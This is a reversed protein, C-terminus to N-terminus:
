KVTIKVKKWMGNQSIVYIYCNGKKRGKVKGTNTVVAITEDSSLYRLEKTLLKKRKGKPWEVRAVVKATRGKKVTLSTKKVVINKPNAYISGKSANYVYVKYSSGIAVKKGKVTKYATVMYAYWNNKKLNKQSYVLKKKDKVEKLLKFKKQNKRTKFNTGYVFYGDADDVKNWTLKCVGKSVKAKLFVQKKQKVAPEFSPEDENSCSLVLNYDSENQAYIEQYEVVDEAELDVQKGDPDVPKGNEDLDYYETTVSAFIKKSKKRKVMMQKYIDGDVKVTVNQSFTYLKINSIQAGTGDIIKKNNLVAEVQNFPNKPVLSLITQLQKKELQKRLKYSSVKVRVKAQVQKGNETVSRNKMVYMPNQSDKDFEEVNVHQGRIKFQGLKAELPDTPLEVYSAVGSCIDDMTYGELLDKESFDIRAEQEDEERVQIVGSDEKTQDFTQKTKSIITGSKDTLAAIVNGSAVNSYSNNKVTVVISAEKEQHEIRTSVSTNSNYKEILSKIEVTGQNDTTDEYELLSGDANQVWARIYFTIGGTPIEYGSLRLDEKSYQNKILKNIEEEKIKWEYSYFGSDILEFKNDDKITFSRLPKVDAKEGSLTILDPNSAYVGVVIEKGGKVLPVTGTNKITFRITRSKQFEETIKVDEVTIEPKNFILTGKCSEEKSESGLASAKISYEIDKISDVPVQYVAHLVTSQGPLVTVNYEQKKGDLTISVMDIKKIGANTVTFPVALPFGRQIEYSAIVPETAEVACLKFEGKATYLNTVGVPTYIDLRDANDSEGKNGETVHQLRDVTYTSPDDKNIEYHTSQVSAYVNDGKSYPQFSDITDGSGMNAMEVPRSVLIRNEDQYFRVASLSYTTNLYTDQEDKETDQEEKKTELWVVSLNDIAADKAPKSFRFNYSIDKAGAQQISEIFDDCPRGEKNVAQLRIDKDVKEIDQQKGSKATNSENYWGLIFREENKWKIKTVQVNRDTQTDNTIRTSNGFTADPNIVSYMVETDEDKDGTKVVYAALATGDELIETEVSCVSGTQGNYLIIDDSWTDKAKDYVKAYITDCVNFDLPNDINSSQVNRWVVVAHNGSVAVTPALDPTGNETLRVPSWKDGTWVSAYIESGNLMLNLEEDTVDKGAGKEIESMERIWTAVSFQRTGAIRLSSDGYGTRRTTRYQNIVLGNEDYVPDLKGDPSVEGTKNDLQDTVYTVPDIGHENEYTGDKELAYSALTDELETSDSDSLFAMISGDENYAPEAFTYANSQVLELQNKGAEDTSDAKGGDWNRDFRQLYTRSEMSEENAELLMIGEALSTGKYKRGKGKELNKWYDNINDWDGWGKAKNFNAISWYKSVSLFLVKAEAKIGINGSIGLECGAKTENKKNTNVMNLMANSEHVGLMGFIGLKLVFPGADVGVGAFCEVGLELGIHTLFDVGKNDGWYTGAVNFDLKATGFISFSYCVPVPGAMLTGAALEKEFKLGASLGGGVFQFEWKNQTRDFIINGMLYGGYSLQFPGVNKKFFSENEIKDNKKDNTNDQHKTAASGGNDTTQKSVNSESKPRNKTQKEARKAEEKKLKEKKKEEKKKKENKTEIHDDMDGGAYDATVRNDEGIPIMVNFIFPDNTPALLFRIDAGPDSQLTEMVKKAPKLKDTDIENGLITGIDFGEAISAATDKAAKNVDKDLVPDTDSTNSVSFTNVIEKIPQETKNAVVLVTKSQSNKVWQNMQMKKMKWTTRVLPMDLFPYDVVQSKQNIPQYGDTDQYYTEYEKDDPKVAGMGYQFEKGNEDTYLVPETELKQGWFLMETELETFPYQYSIGVSDTKGYVDTINSLYNSDREYQYFEQTNIVPQLMGKDAKRVTVDAQCGNTLLNSNVDTEITILQPEYVLKNQRADDDKQFKMELKYTIDDQTTIRRDVSTTEERTYFQSSDFYVTFKGNENTVFEQDQKGDTVSKPGKGIGATYCYKDNKLVGGRVWVTQNAYPTGNENKIYIDAKGVSVLMFNNIPYYKLKSIDQEGTVLQMNAITGIYSEENEESLCYVDSQIGTPEYLALEGKENSQVSCKEGKGNTYSVTTVTAPLFKFLYLQDKLTKSTITIKSSMGTRVQTAKIVTKGDELGVAMFNDSPSYSVYDYCKLNSYSGGQQYNLTTPTKVENKDKRKNETVEWSIQDSIQGWVYDGYNISIISHLNIDESLSEISVIDNGLQITKRDESLLNEIKKHNDLEIQNQDTVGPKNKGKVADVLIDLADHNYVYLVFSDTSPVEQNAAQVSARIVYAKKLVNKVPKPSWSFVNKGNKLPAHYVEEGDADTISFSTNKMVAGESSLECRVRLEKTDLISYSDLKGLSVDPLKPVAYIGVSSTLTTHKAVIGANTSESSISDASITAIYDPTERCNANEIIGEPITFKGIAKQNTADQTKEYVPQGIPNGSEDAKYLKITFPTPYEDKKWEGLLNMSKAEEANLATINSSFCVDLASKREVRLIAQSGAASPIKLFPETGPECHLTVSRCVEVPQYKLLGGNLAYLTFYVKGAKGTPVIQVSAKKDEGYSSAEEGTYQDPYKVTAVNEDSSVWILDSRGFFTFDEEKFNATIKLEDGKVRFPKTVYPENLEYLNTTVAKKEDSGERLILQEVQGDKMKNISSYTKNDDRSDVYVPESKGSTVIHTIDSDYEQHYSVLDKENEALEAWNSQFPHETPYTITAAGPYTLVVHKVLYGFYTKVNVSTQGFMLVAEKEGKLYDYSSAIEPDMFLEAYDIRDEQAVNLVPKYYAVLAVPIENTETTQGLQAVVYLPIRTKGGDVSLYMSKVYESIQYKNPDSYEIYSTKALASQVQDGNKLDERKKLDLGSIPSCNSQIWRRFEGNSGQNVTLVETVWQRSPINDDIECTANVFSADKYSHLRCNSNSDVVKGKFDNKAKVLDFITNRQGPIKLVNESFSKTGNMELSDIAPIEGSPMKPVEYLFTCSNAKTGQEVPKLVIGNNLKLVLTDDIKIKEDFTAVIPVKQGSYFDGDPISLGTLNVYEHIEKISIKFVNGGTYYCDANSPWSKGTNYGYGCTLKWFQGSPFTTRGFDKTFGGSTFTYDRYEKSESVGRNTGYYESQTSSGSGYEFSREFHIVPDDRNWRYRLKANPEFSVVYTNESWGNIYQQIMSYNLNYEIVSGELKWEYDPVKFKGSGISEQGNVEHLYEMPNNSTVNMKISASKGCAESSSFLANQINYCQIYFTRNGKYKERNGQYTVKFQAHDKGAPITITGDGDAKGSGSVTRYQFTVPLKQMATLKVNVTIQQSNGTETLTSKEPMVNVRVSHDIGAGFEANGEANIEVGTSMLQANLSELSKKYKERNNENIVVGTNMFEKIQMLERKTKLLSNVETWKLQVGDINVTGGQHKAAEVTLQEETMKKKNVQFMGGTVPMGKKDVLGHERLVDLVQVANEGNICLKQLEQVMKQNYHTEECASVQKDTAKVPVSISTAAIATSMFVAFLRKMVQKKRM